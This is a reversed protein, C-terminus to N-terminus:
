EFLLVTENQFFVGENPRVQLLVIQGNVMNVVYSLLLHLTLSFIILFIGQYLVLLFDSGKIQSLWM